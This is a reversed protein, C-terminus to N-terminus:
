SGTIGNFMKSLPYAPLAPADGPLIFPRFNSMDVRVEEWPTITPFLTDSYNLWQDRVFIGFEKDEPDFGSFTFLIENNSSFYETVDSWENSSDKTIVGIM